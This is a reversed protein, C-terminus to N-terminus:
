RITLLQQQQQQSKGIQNQNTHLRFPVSPEGRRAGILRPTGHHATTNQMQQM